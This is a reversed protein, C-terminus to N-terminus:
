VATDTIETAKKNKKEALSVAGDPSVALQQGFHIHEDTLNNWEKLQEVSVRFKKSISFLTENKMVYHTAVASDPKSVPKTTVPTKATKETAVNSSAPIKIKEGIKLQSKSNMSNFRMIDGVSTHYKKALQSLTEGKVITHITYKAEQANVNSICFITCFLFLFLVNKM